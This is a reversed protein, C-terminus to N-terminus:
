LGPESSGPPRQREFAARMAFLAAPLRLRLAPGWPLEQVWPEMVALAVLAAGESRLLAEASPWCAARALREDEHGEVAAAQAVLALGESLPAAELDEPGQPAPSLWRELARLSSLELPRPRSPAGSLTVPGGLDWRCPVETCSGLEVLRALLSRGPDGPGCDLPIASSLRLRLPGQRLSRLGVGLIRWAAEMAAGPAWLATESLLARAVEEAAPDRASRLGRLGGEWRLELDVGRLLMALWTSAALLGESPLNRRILWLAFRVPSAHGSLRRYSAELACLHLARAVWCEQSGSSLAALTGPRGSDGRLEQLASACDELSSQAAGPSESPRLHEAAGRRVGERWWAEFDLQVEDAFEAFSERPRGSCLVQRVKESVWTQCQELSQHSDCAARVTRPASCSPVGARGRRTYERAGSRPRMLVLLMVALSLFWVVATGPSDQLQAAISPWHPMLLQLIAPASRAELDESVEGLHEMLLPLPVSASRRAWLALALALPARRAFAAAGAELLLADLELGLASSLLPLEPSEPSNLAAERLQAWVEGRSARLLFVERLTWVVALTAEGEPWERRGAALGIVRGPLPLEQFVANPGESRAQASALLLASAAGERLALLLLGGSLLLALDVLRGPLAPLDVLREAPGPLRLEEGQLFGLGEPLVLLQQLAPLRLPELEFREQASSPLATGDEISWADLALLLRWHKPEAATEILLWERGESACVQLWVVPALMFCRIEEQTAADVIALRGSLAGLILYHREQAGRTWWALATVPGERFSPLLFRCAPLSEGFLEAISAEGWGGMASWASAMSSLARARDVGCALLLPASPGASRREAITEAWAPSALRLLELLPVVAVSADEAVALLESDESLAMACAAGLLPVDLRLAQGEAAYRVLIERRDAFGLVLVDFGRCCRSAVLHVEGFEAADVVSVLRALPGLADTALAM